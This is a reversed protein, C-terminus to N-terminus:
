KSMLLFGVIQFDRWQIQLSNFFFTNKLLLNLPENSLLCVPALRTPSPFVDVRTETVMEHAAVDPWIRSMMM